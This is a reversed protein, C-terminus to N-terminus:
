AANQHNTSETTCRHKHQWYCYVQCCSSELKAEIYEFSAMLVGLITLCIPLVALNWFVSNLNLWFSTATLLLAVSLTIIKALYFM